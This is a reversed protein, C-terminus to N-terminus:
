PMFSYRLTIPNGVTGTPGNTATNSWRYNAQFAAGGSLVTEMIQALNFDPEDGPELCCCIPIRDPQSAIRAIMEQHLPDIRDFDARSVLHAVAAYTRDAIRWDPRPNGIAVLAAILVLTGRRSM